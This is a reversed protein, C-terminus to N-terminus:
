EAAVQAARRFRQIRQAAPDHRARWDEMFAAYEALAHEYDGIQAELQRKVLDFDKPDIM